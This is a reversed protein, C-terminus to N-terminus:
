GASLAMGVGVFHIHADNFGPTVLKGKLDIAQKANYKAQLDKSSGVAVIKEGDIAVAEYITGKEDATFVKGNYLLLSINQKTQAMAIFPLFFISILSIILLKRLM